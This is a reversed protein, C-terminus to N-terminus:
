NFKCWVTFKDFENQIDTMLSFYDHTVAKGCLRVCRTYNEGVSVGAEIVLVIIMEWCLSSCLGREAGIVWRSYIVIVPIIDYMLYWVASASQSIFTITMTTRMWIRLVVTARLRTCIIMTTIVLSSAEGSCLWCWSGYIWIQRRIKISSQRTSEMLPWDQVWLWCKLVAYIVSKLGMTLVCPETPNRQLHELSILADSEKQFALVLM